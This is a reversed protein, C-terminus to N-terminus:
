FPLYYIDAIDAGEVRQRKFNLQAGLGGCAIVMSRRTATGKKIGYWENERKLNRLMNM